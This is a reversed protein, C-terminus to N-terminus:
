IPPSCVAPEPWRLPRPRATRGVDRQQDGTRARRQGHGQRHVRSRLRAEPGMRRRGLDGRLCWAIGVVHRHRHVRVVPQLDRSDAGDADGRRLRDNGPGAHHTRQRRDQRSRAGLEGHRGARREPRVPPWLRRREDHRGTRPLEHLDGPAATGGRDAARVGATRRGRTWGLRARGDAPRQDRRRLPDRQGRFTRPDARTRTRTRTRAGSATPDSGARAGFRPPQRRRRRRLRDPNAARCTGRDAHPRPDDTAEPNSNNDISRLVAFARGTGMCWPPFRFRRAHARKSASASGASSSASCITPPSSM